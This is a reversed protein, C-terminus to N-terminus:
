VFSKKVAPSPEKKVLSADIMELMDKLTMHGATLARVFKDLTLMDGGATMVRLMVMGIVNLSFIAPRVVAVTYQKLPPRINVGTPIAVGSSETYPKRMELQGMIVYGAAYLQVIDRPTLGDELPKMWVQPADKIFYTTFKEDGM